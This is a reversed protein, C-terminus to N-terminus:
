CVKNNIRNVFEKLKSIQESQDFGYINNNSIRFTRLGSNGFFSLKNNLEDFKINEFDDYEYENIRIRSVILHYFFSHIIIHRSQKYCFKQLKLNKKRVKVFFTIIKGDKYIMIEQTIFTNKIFIYNDKNFGMSKVVEEINEKAKTKDISIM